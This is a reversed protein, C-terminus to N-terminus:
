KMLQTEMEDIMAEYDDEPAIAQTEEKPDEKEAETEEEKPDEEKPDEEKPDEEKPSKPDEKEAQTEEEKPDEKPSKPDEVAAETEEEKPDEEDSDTDLDSSTSAVTKVKKTKSAETGEFLKAIQADTMKKGIIAKVTEVSLTFDYEKDVQDYYKFEAEFGSKFVSNSMLKKYIDGLVKQYNVAKGVYNKSGAIIVKPHKKSAVQEASLKLSKIEEVEADRQANIEAIEFAKKKDEYSRYKELVAYEGRYKGNELTAVVEIEEAIMPTVIEGHNKCVVGKFWFHPNMFSKGQVEGSEASAASAAPAAPASSPVNRSRKNGKSKASPTAPTAPVSAAATPVTAKLKFKEAVYSWYQQLRQQDGVLGYNNMVDFVDSWFAKCNNETSQIQKSM